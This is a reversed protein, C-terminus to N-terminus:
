GNRPLDAARAGAGMAAIPVPVYPPRYTTIGTQAVDRGTADGLVAMASLNSTKGQDPAMGQTTYRKMHEVSRFNEAAAGRVDKVSVDNALDLWARGKGPVHWLAKVSYPAGEAEPVKQHPVAHGMEELARAAAARGSELAEWTPFLGAAGGAPILGPMGEPAPLFSAIGEDWMPRGNLHCTLHLSPNWGGSVALCDSQLKVEGTHTRLSVTELGMRGTVRSVVAGPYFPLDLDTTAEHRADVLGAVHVGAALLTAPPATRM